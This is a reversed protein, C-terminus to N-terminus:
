HCTGLTNPGLIRMNYSTATKVLDVEMQQGVSGMEKFGASIVIAGQIGKEGCAEVIECVTSAPTVVVALDCQGSPIESV